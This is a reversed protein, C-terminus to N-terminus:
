LKGGAMHFTPVPKAAQLKREWKACKQRMILNIQEDTVGLFALIDLCNILVDVTEEAVDEANGTASASANPVGEHKLIEQWLEGQEESLKGARALLSIGLESEQASLARLKDTNIM